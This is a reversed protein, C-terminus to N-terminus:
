PQPEPEPDREPEGAPEKLYLLTLLIVGVTIEIDAVNFAPWSPPDIFDTVEGIRIRDILNGIAGGALLGVPLWLLPRDHSTALFAALGATFAIGIAVLLATSVGDLLGFAIGDNGIHVLEIGLVFDVREGPEISGRVIGKVVQDVVIAVVAVVGARALSRRSSV